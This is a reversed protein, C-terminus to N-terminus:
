RRGARTLRRFQGEGIIAIPRGKAILKRAADLKTGTHGGRYLPSRGGQVVVDIDNTVREAVKGGAQLVLVEADFRPISLPGTFIVTKNELSELKAADAVENGELAQIMAYADAFRKARPGIARRLVRKLRDSVKLASVDALTLPEGMRGSLLVGLLQGMQYVDDAAMWYRHQADQIGKTVFAPNYADITQRAGKVDHRAIGFDGLKLVGGRCVFVNMPTIDRHTASAGHLGDLMRLLALIERVARKETFPKNGRQELYDELTGLEALELVLCYLLKAGREGTLLPFSDYTQIARKSKGLLEGFYSERHWSAQDPTTKLCVEDVVKGRRGLEYARYAKGFGGEGLVEALEYTTDTVPSTLRDGPGPERRKKAAM